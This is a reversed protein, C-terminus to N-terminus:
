WAPSRYRVAAVILLAIAPLCAVLAPVRGAAAAQLLAISGMCALAVWAIVKPPTSRAAVLALALGFAALVIAATIGRWGEDIKSLVPHTKPEPKLEGTPSIHIGRADDVFGDPVVRITSSETARPYFGSAADGRALVCAAAVFSLMAAGLAAFLAARAPSCGVSELALLEGRRQARRVVLLTVVGGCAPVVPVTRLARTAWTVSGEDTAGTVACAIGFVLMGLAVTSLAARVDWATPTLKV